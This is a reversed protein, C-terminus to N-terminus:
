LYKLCHSSALLQTVRDRDGPPLSAFSEKIRNYCKHQYKFTPQQHAVAEASSAWLSVEVMPKNEAVCSSNAALFPLYVDGAFKAMDAVLQRNDCFASDEEVGSLDEMLRVWTWVAPYDNRIMRFLM